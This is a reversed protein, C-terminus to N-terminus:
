PSRAKYWSWTRCFSSNSHKIARFLQRINVCSQKTRKLHSTKQWDLDVQFGLFIPSFELMDIVNWLLHLPFLVLLLLFLVHNLFEIILIVNVKFTSCQFVTMYNIANWLLLFHFLSVHYKKLCTKLIRNDIHCESQFHLLSIGDNLTVEIASIVNECSVCTYPWLLSTLVHYYNWVFFMRVLRPNGYM